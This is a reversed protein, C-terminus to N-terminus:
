LMEVHDNMVGKTQIGLREIAKNLDYFINTVIGGTGALESLIKYMHGVPVAGLDVKETARKEIGSCGTQM